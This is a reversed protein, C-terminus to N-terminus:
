QRCCQSELIAGSHAPEDYVNPVVRLCFKACPTNAIRFPIVKKDDCKSVLLYNYVAGVVGQERFQWQKEICRWRRM